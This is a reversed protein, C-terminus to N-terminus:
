LDHGALRLHVHFRRDRIGVGARKLADGDSTWFASWDDFSVKTDSERGIAKLFNAPTAIKGALSGVYSSHRVSDEREAHKNTGRPTPAPRTLAKNAVSRCLWGISPILRSTSLGLSMRLAIV